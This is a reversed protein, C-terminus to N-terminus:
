YISTFTTQDYVARTLRNLSDYVYPIRGAQTDSVSLLSLSLCVAILSLQLGKKNGYINRMKNKERQGMTRRMADKITEKKKM